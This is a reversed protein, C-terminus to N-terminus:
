SPTWAVRGDSASLARSASPLCPPTRSPGRRWKRSRRRRPRRRRRHDRFRRDAGGGSPRGPPAAGQVQARLEEERARMALLVGEDLADRVDSRLDRARAGARAVVETPCTATWPATSGASPGCRAASAPRPASRSGGSGRSCAERRRATARARTKRDAPRGARQRRDPGPVPAMAGAGKLDRGLALVKILPNSLSVYALRSASGVTETISEASGVLDGVRELEAGARSVTAGVDDILM